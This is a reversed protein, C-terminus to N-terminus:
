IATVRVEDFAVVAGAAYLGIRSPRPQTVKEVLLQADWQFTLRGEKKHFRFHQCLSPDFDAPLLFRETSGQERWLVAWGEWDREITLLPGRGDENLAPFFGYAAQPRGESELRANVVLEYSDLLPGKVLGSPEQTSLHWLQQKHIRWSDAPGIVRWGHEAPHGKHTFMNQWGVTVTFGVFAAAMAETRLAVQCSAVEQIQGMWQWRGSDLVVSAAQGDLRLRLLHYVKPEFGAPLSMKQEHWGTTSRWEVIAQNREPLFRFHLLSPGQEDLLSIGYTTGRDGNELARLSVEVVFYPPGVFRRAESSADKTEQVAAGDHTGWRGGICTWAPGLDGTPESDFYDALTPLLPASQPRYSPGLIRLREGVWELRDIALLRGSRDEAWRHYVCFLQQNNPGRVVSNHGPGIVQGPVSRLIPLVDQGDCKQQWEEQRRINATTAYCVGYSPNQWNGGSFMQYYIDKRKLVFPGEITHWCVGGKELRHPDYIQWDYCPLTVAQPQGKLTFPDLLRDRVTGTGIRDRDLFDTAYFLYRSGDEDEFVHADIAFSETTLENGSDTFPGAPHEAVAVRIHMLTENGVSYYMFFRGNDYTVEPAWYCTADGPLPALAGAM